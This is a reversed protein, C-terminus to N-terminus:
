NIPDSPLPMWHSVREIECDHDDGDEGDWCEHEHNFTLIETKYYHGSNEGRKWDYRKYVLCPVTSFRKSEDKEPLRESTKIWGEMNNTTLLKVEMM